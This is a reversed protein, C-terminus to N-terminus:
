GHRRHRSQRLNRDRLSYECGCYDQRYMGHARSLTCSHKFGDKKKFDVPLFTVGSESGVKEGIPFIVRGPKNPGITLTTTFVGIGLTAALLATKRLRFEFCLACRYGGEAEDGYPRVTDLWERRDYGATLLPIGQRTLYRGAEERRFTHEDPPFINPNYFFATLDYDSALLRVPHTSCPACCIHLLLRPRHNCDVNM